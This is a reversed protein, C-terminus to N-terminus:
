GGGVGGSTRPRIRRNSFLPSEFGALRPVGLQDFYATPLATQLGGHAAIRWWRRAHAAVARTVSEPTNRARLKRYITTGRKWQKLQVARLRRRIWEDLTRFINPTDALQFYKKWGPLYDRLEAVVSKMSRGGARRTIRRVQHKMEKLAEPAVRHKVAKGPGAWFSYGLFKRNWVREVASKSDNIRLRLRALLRRLTEMADEGARKSGVYVNLDDAYRAFRLGRKELERDVEDLLVNAMLPSLPGGQPAGEHREMVVGNCMMGAELYRRILGLVRRDAIRKALRGMLLDHNVRDFFKELDIDVVWRRGEQILRQAARVADHASRRPRFGYSHQSFSADFQPQLVQLLLQQIFRDLVTPIGLQRVGGGRKQIPQRKVPQPQYTGALLQARLAEWHEALYKPLAEVTMGDIGPSGRNQRVRKLAARANSREVAAEMLRHDNGSRADGDIATPAEGSRQALSAEGGGGLALELQESKQRGAGGLSVTTREEKTQGKVDPKADGVSSHGSSVGRETM